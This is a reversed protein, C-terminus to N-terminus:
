EIANIFVFVHLLEIAPLAKNVSLSPFRYLCLICVIYYQMQTDFLLDRSLSAQLIVSTM